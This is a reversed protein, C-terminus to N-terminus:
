IRDRFKVSNYVPSVKDWEYVYETDPDFAWVFTWHETELIQVPMVDPPLDPFVDSTLDYERHNGYPEYYSLGERRAIDLEEALTKESINPVPRNYDLFQGINSEKDISVVGPRLDRIMELLPKGNYSDHLLSVILTPVDNIQEWLKMDEKRVWIHKRGNYSM